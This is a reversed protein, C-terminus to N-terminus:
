DRELVIWPTLMEMLSMGGHRYAKNGTHGQPRNKIRGRLMALKKPTVIQLSQADGPMNENERFFQFRNQDLIKAADTFITSEMGQGLFIYGHDSTVIIRYGKPIALIINKWVTDFLRCTEGFHSSFRSDFDQYTGDPFHSWLLLNQKDAPLEFTRIVSDYYFTKVGLEAIEKRAPLLSPSVGPKGLIRQEIFSTTDSPLAAMDYRSEVISFGNTLALKEFLPQERISAGDFIVLACAKKREITQWIKDTKDSAATLENYIGFAYGLILDEMRCVLKEGQELYDEPRMSKFRSSSWVKEKLWAHLAVLRDGTGSLLQLEEEGRKSSDEYRNIKDEKYDRALGSASSRPIRGSQHEICDQENM